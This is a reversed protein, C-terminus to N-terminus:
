TLLDRQVAVARLAGGEGEGEGLLQPVALPDFSALKRLYDTLM